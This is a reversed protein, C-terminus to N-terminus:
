SLYSAIHAANSTLLSPSPKSLCIFVKFLWTWFVSSHGCVCGLLKGESQSGSRSEFISTFGARLQRFDDSVAWVRVVVREPQQIPIGPDFQCGISLLVTTTTSKAQCCVNGTLRHQVTYVPRSFAFLLNFIHIVLHSYLNQM